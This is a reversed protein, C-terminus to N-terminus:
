ALPRRARRLAVLMVGSFALAIGTAALATGDGGSRALEQPLAQSGHDIDVPPAAAVDSMFTQHDVPVAGGRAGPSTAEVDVVIASGGTTVLASLSVTVSEGPAIAGTWRLVEGDLVAAGKTAGIARDIRAARLLSALDATLTADTLPVNGTNTLTFEYGVRDGPRLVTGV